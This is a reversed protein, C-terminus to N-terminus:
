PAGVCRPVPPPAAAAAARLATVSASDDKVFLGSRDDEHVLTWGPTRRMLNFTPVAKSALAMDTDRALLADWDGVGFTWALNRDYVERPYVTERRPDMSVQVRPGVKWLVYGGWDYFVAMRGPVGARDLIAVAEIPLADAPVEICTLRPMSLVLLVAAEAVMLLRIWWSWRTTAPTGTGFARTRFLVPVALVLVAVIFLPTHRRVALAALALTGLVATAPAGLATRQRRVAVAAVALACGYAVGDFALPSVPGWEPLEPRPRAAQVLYTWLELGYPNLCVGLTAAAFALPGIWRGERASLSMVATWVGAVLVGLLVGGHLNAWLTFLVPLAALCWRRRAGADLVVLTVAFLLVSFIQPRASGLGPLMALCGTVTVLAAALLSAGSARVRRGVITALALIVALKLAVLGADGGARRAREFTWESLWEHNIWPAGATLYSYPDRSGLGQEVIDHGARLHWWLDPDAVTRAGAFVLIAVALGLTASRAGIVPVGHSGSSVRAAHRDPM